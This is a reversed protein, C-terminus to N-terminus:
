YNMIKYRYLANDKDEKELHVNFIKKINENKYLEEPKGSDIIKGDDVIFIYDFFSFAQLLDHLIVIITKDKDNIEKIINLIDIQSELDLHTTPEDLLLVKSEQALTSAIYVKQLEGGSINCLNKYKLKELGVKKISEEVIRYDKESLTKSFGLHPFRGHEVMLRVSINPLPRTQPLYSIYKARNKINLQKIDIDEYFINGDSPVLCNITKFLTSKGSGNRGIVCYLVGSNLDLSINDIITKNSLSCKLNEIKLM